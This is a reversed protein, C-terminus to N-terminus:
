ELIWRHMLEVTRAQIDIKGVFEKRLPVLRIEPRSADQGASESLTVELLDGAGGEMVDTISGVSVGQYVLNCQCLDEVYFEGEELPCAKDRPVLIAAGALRKAQEPTDIGKFKILLCQANGEVAEIRYLQEPAGTGGSRLVVEDLDAFHAVEGSSSEVRVFGDVGHSSRVYGTVLRDM